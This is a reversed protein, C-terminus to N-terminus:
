VGGSRSEEVGESRLRSSENMVSEQQRISENHIAQVLDCAFSESLGAHLIAQIRSDYISAWRDAQLITVDRLRKYLGIERSVEMRQALLGIIEEDLQDIDYRLAELNALFEPDDVNARRRQLGALTLSLGAPTLQQAADSWAHDPDCHTEIMFGNFDLDIAHQAIGAILDRRGAIHSPDCLTDLAPFRRRLEIPLEWMPANRYVGPKYVSFGRFITAMRRIGARHLRELAGIWLELDPNVPNKVFVPVDTGQLADAIEQVTFPNATSRAGVWLIDVGAELAKEVHHASAVEISVPLGTARGAEVVWPLAQEGMGSFAEPRTRPKWVGARLIHAGAAAAGECSALTQEATEASCPGAILILEDPPIPWGWSRVPVTDM